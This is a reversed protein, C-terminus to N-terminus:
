NLNLKYFLHKFLGIKSLFRQKIERFLQKSGPSTQKIILKFKISPDPVAFVRNDGTQM